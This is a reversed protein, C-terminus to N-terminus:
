IPVITNSPDFTLGFGFCAVKGKTSTVLTNEIVDVDKCWCPGLSNEVYICTVSSLYVSELLAVMPVQKACRTTSMQFNICILQM